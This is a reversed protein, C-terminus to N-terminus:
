KSSLEENSFKYSHTCQHIYIYKFKKKRLDENMLRSNILFNWYISGLPPVRIHKPYPHEPQPVFWWGLFIIELMFISGFFIIKRERCVWFCVLSDRDWQHCISINERDRLRYRLDTSFLCSENTFWTKRWKKLSKECQLGM